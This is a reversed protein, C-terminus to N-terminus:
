KYNRLEMGQIVKGDPEVIALPGFMGGFRAHIEIRKGCTEKKAEEIAEQLTEAYHMIRGPFYTLGRNTVNLYRGNDLFYYEFSMRPNSITTTM